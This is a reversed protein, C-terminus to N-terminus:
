QDAPKEEDTQGDDSTVPGLPIPEKAEEEAPAEPEPEPELEAPAEAETLPASMTGSLTEHPEAPAEPEASVVPLVSNAPTESVQLPDSMNGSPTEHPTASGRGFSDHGVEVQEPEPTLAAPTNPMVPAAGAGGTTTHPVGDPLPAESTGWRSVDFRTFWQGVANISVLQMATGIVGGIYGVVIFLVLLFLAPGAGWELLSRLIMEGDGMADYMGAIGVVGLLSGVAFIGFVIGMLMEYVFSILGGIVSVLFTKLFGGFDRTVMQFLRDVRWGASFSDYLTARLAAAYIFTDSLMSIVWVLFFTVGGAALSVAGSISGTGVVGLLVGFSGPFIIQLVLMVVIGMTLTVGFARAGTSLMKGYDVGGQKPASDVGWATLRAWELAYGLVAIQGFIPIWGVLTLVLLPKIWGKDRTLMRWSSAFGLEHAQM